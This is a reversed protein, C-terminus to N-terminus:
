NGKRKLWLMMARCGIYGIFGVSMLGKALWDFEPHSSLVSFMLGGALVMVLAVMAGNNFKGIRAQKRMAEAQARVEPDSSRVEGCYPCVPAKDSIRKGCAYCHIIAM